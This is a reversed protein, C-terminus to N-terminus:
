STWNDNFVRLFNLGLVKRISDEDLGRDIMGQTLVPFDALSRFGDLEPLNNDPFKDRLHGAASTTAAAFRRRIRLRNERPYAGATAEKDTGIGIHDIGVLNVAYDMIDLYDEVSPPTDGGQWVLSPFPSLGIVGGNEAVAKMTEDPLNRPVKAGAGYPNGHTVVTPMKSLAIAENASQVSAHSFDVVMGVRNMEEVLVRGEASLGSNSLTASGDAAFNRDNYAIQCVRMGMRYFLEVLYPKSAMHRANQAGIILGVHDVEKARKIDEVTYVFDLKPDSHILAYHEAIAKTAEGVDAEVDPVTMNLATVGADRLLDSYGECFFSTADIVISDAHLAFAEDSVPRSLTM